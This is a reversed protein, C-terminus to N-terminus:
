LRDLLSIMSDVCSVQTTNVEGCMHISVMKDGVYYTTLGSGACNPRSVARGKKVDAICKSIKKMVEGSLAPKNTIKESLGKETTIRVDGMAFVEVTRSNRFKPPRAGASTMKTLVPEGAGGAFASQFGIFVSLLALIKM